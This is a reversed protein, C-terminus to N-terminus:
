GKRNSQQAAILGRMVALVEASSQPRAPSAPRKPGSLYQPLPKLRKTRAFAEIHWALALARDDDAKAAETRGRLVADIVRPTSRWFDSVPM